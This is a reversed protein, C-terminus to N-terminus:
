GHREPTDELKELLSRRGDADVDLLRHVHDVVAARQDAPLGALRGIVSAIAGDTASTSATNSATASPRESTKM